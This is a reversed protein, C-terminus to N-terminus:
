DYLCGWILYMCLVKYVCYVVADGLGHGVRRVQALISCAGGEVGGRWALVEWWWGGPVGQRINISGDGAKHLVWGECSWDVAGTWDPRIWYLSWAQGSWRGVTM